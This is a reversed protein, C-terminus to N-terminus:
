NCSQINNNQKLTFDGEIFKVWIALREAMNSFSNNSTNLVLGTSQPFKQIEQFQKVSQITGAILESMVLTNLGLWKLPALLQSVAAAVNETTHVMLYSQVLGLMLLLLLVKDLAITLLTPQFVVNLLVVSLLLYRFRMWIDALDNIKLAPTVLYVLSVLALCGLKYKITIFNIAVSFVLVGILLILPTCSNTASNTKDRTPM